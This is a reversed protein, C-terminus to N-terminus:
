FQPDPLTKNECGFKLTHLESLRLETRSVMSPQLSCWAAGSWIFVPQDQVPRRNGVGKVKRHRGSQHGGSSRM